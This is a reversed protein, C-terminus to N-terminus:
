YTTLFSIAKVTTAPRKSTEYNVVLKLNELDTGYANCNEGALKLDATVSNPSTKVNSAKYGPCKDTPVNSPVAAGFVSGAGALLAASIASKM